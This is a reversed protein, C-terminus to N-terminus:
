IVPEKCHLLVTLDSGAVTSGVQDIDLTLETGAALATDSFAHNNDETTGSIDIEPKTTFVTTGGDNIDVILAAGTPATKVHLEVDEIITARKMRFTCVQETGTAVEGSIFWVYTRPVYLIDSGGVQHTAEHTKPPQNDALEGSLGAVSIEDTEGNQHSTKHASPTRSASSTDLTADSIKSNLDALTDINHASGALDHTKPPQDDALEGSLGAVSIEDTEGNQHSTKHASPTRSASSTDLTADSIKANLDALTDTNHEAGALDHASPTRSASSTDLTADSIKANLDALTDANHASGALDHAKPPQDDALEGSLGAVSIEDGGTNEHFTKHASPTRTATNTDLTADSIKANLNALTDANHDAGGLDHAKPPQDDALEGSLGTVSIEDGGGNQHSTKHAKPDHLEAGSLASHVLEGTLTADEETVVYKANDPAYGLVVLLKKIVGIQPMLHGFAKSYLGRSGFPM